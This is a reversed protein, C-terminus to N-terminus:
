RRRRAKARSEARKRARNEERIVHDMADLLGIPYAM